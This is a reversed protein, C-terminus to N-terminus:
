ETIKLLTEDKSPPKYNQLQSLIEKSVTPFKGFGMDGKYIKGDLLKNLGHYLKPIKDFDPNDKQNVISIGDLPFPQADKSVDENINYQFKSGSYGKPIDFFM